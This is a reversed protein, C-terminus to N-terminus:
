KRLVKFFRKMDDFVDIMNITNTIGNITGGHAITNRIDYYDVIKNYDTGGRETLLGVRTKFYLKQPHINDWIARTKWHAINTQKNLIMSTSEIKIHDELRTFLFLFYAHTNLERKRRWYDEKLNYGRVIAKFEKGAYRNEIEFYQSEIERIIKM